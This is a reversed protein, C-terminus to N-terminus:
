LGCRWRDRGAGFITALPSWRKLHFAVDIARPTQSKFPMILYVPIAIMALMVAALLLV